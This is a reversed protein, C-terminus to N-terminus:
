ENWPQNYEASFEAISQIVTEVPYREFKVPKLKPLLHYKRGRKRANSTVFEGIHGGRRVLIQYTSSGSDQIGQHSYSWTPPGEGQGLLWGPALISPSNYPIGRSAAWVAFKGCLEPIVHLRKAIEVEQVHQADIAERRIHEAQIADLQNKQILGEAIERIKDGSETM